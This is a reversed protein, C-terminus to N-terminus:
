RGLSAVCTTSRGPIDGVAGLTRILIVGSLQLTLGLKKRVVGALFGRVSHREVALREV